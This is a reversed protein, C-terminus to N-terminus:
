CMEPRLNAELLPCRDIVPKGIPMTTTTGGMVNIVLRVIWSISSQYTQTQM